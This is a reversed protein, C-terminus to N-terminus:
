LGRGARGGRRRPPAVKNLAEHLTVTMPHEAPEGSYQALLARVQEQTDVGVPVGLAWDLFVTRCEALTIGDIRYAERILARPDLKDGKM